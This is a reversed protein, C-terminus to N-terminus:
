AAALIPRLTEALDKLHVTVCSLHQGKIPRIDLSRALPRWFGPEYQDRNEGEVASLCYVPVDLRPPAYRAMTDFVLDTMRDEYPSRGTPRPPALPFRDPMIKHLALRTIVAAGPKWVAFRWHRVMQKARVEEGLAAWVQNLARFKRRANFSIPEIIVLKSVERGAARLQHALEWALLAGNCYGGLTIAGAPQAALIEPVIEAAIVQMPREENPDFGAHVLRVPRDLKLMDGLKRAYLGRTLYDGHCYFIPDGCGASAETVRAAPREAGHITATVASHLGRVTIPYPIDAEPIRRGAIGEVEVLMEQGLLSDGGIEFFDDDIGIDDRGLLRRWVGVIQTQLMDYAPTIVREDDDPDFAATLRERVIKGTPGRPLADLVVISQPVKFASIRKSLFCKLEAPTASQGPRFIVALAVGEGLRPHPAGFAACEALAPHEMAALEVDYPSIKTGGRNIMEKTRGVITLFGDSDVAGLDGIRLWGDAPTPLGLYGPTVHPGRIGIDGIEGPGLREGDPGLVAVQDPPALGVTGARRRDPTLGNSTLVGSETTGYTTLVPAHLRAEAEVVLEEPVLSAGCTVFRLGPLDVGEAPLKDLMRRLVAPSTSLWTPQLASWWGALDEREDVRPVAVGGGMLLPSLLVQTLGASYHLPLTCASRDAPSMGYLRAMNAPLALINGHTLPILKPLGTTGSSRMLFAVADGAPAPTRPRAAPRVLELRVATGDRVAVFLTLDAAEAMRRGRAADAAAVVMGDLEYTEAAAALERDTYHPDLPACVCAAGVGTLVVVPELGHDLMVGVRADPGLGAARLAAAAEALQRALEAYGIPASGSCIVAVADPRTVALDAIARGFNM